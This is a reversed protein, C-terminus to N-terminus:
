SGRCARIYATRAGREAQAAAYAAGLCWDFHLRYDASWRTGSLGPRCAPTSLAIQVQNLAARAYDRCFGPDAAQANTSCLAAACLSAFVTTSGLKQLM